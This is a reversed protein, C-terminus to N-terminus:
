KFHNREHAPVLGHCIACFHELKQPFLDAASRGMCEPSVSAHVGVNVRSHDLALSMEWRAEAHGSCLSGVDAAQVALAECGQRQTGVVAIRLQESVDDLAILRQYPIVTRHVPKRRAPVAQSLLTAYVHQCCAM